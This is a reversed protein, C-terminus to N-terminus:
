EWEITSVSNDLAQNIGAALDSSIQLEEQDRFLPDFSSYGCEQAIQVPIKFHELKQQIHKAVEIDRPHHRYSIFASYHRDQNM